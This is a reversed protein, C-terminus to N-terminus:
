AISPQTFTMHQNCVYPTLSVPPMGATLARDKLSAQRTHTNVRSIPHLGILHLRAEHTSPPVNANAGRQM